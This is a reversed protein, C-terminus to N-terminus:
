WWSVGVFCSAISDEGGVASVRRASERGGSPRRASCERDRSVTAKDMGGSEVEMAVVRAVARVM